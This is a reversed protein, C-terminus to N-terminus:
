PYEVPVKSMNSTLITKLVMKTNTFGDCYNDKLGMYLVTLPTSKSFNDVNPIKQLNLHQFDFNQRFHFPKKM